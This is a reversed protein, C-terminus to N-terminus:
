CCSPPQLPNVVNDTKPNYLAYPFQGHWQGTACRTCTFRQDPKGLRRIESTALDMMDVHNCNLCRFLQSSATTAHLTM